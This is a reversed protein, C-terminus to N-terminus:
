LSSYIADCGNMGWLFSQFEKLTRGSRENDYQNNYEDANNVTSQLLMGVLIDSNGLHEAITSMGSEEWM